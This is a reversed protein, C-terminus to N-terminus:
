LILIKKELAEIYKNIVSLIKDRESSNAAYAVINLLLLLILILITIRYKM